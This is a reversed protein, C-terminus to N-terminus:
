RKAPLELLPVEDRKEGRRVQRGYILNQSRLAPMRRLEGLGPGLLGRRQAM